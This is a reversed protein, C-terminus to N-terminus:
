CKDQPYSLMSPMTPEAHHNKMAVPHQSIVPVKQRATFHNVLLNQPGFVHTAFQSMYSELQNQYSHTLILMRQYQSFLLRVLSNIAAPIDQHSPHFHPAILVCGDYERRIEAFGIIQSGLRLVYQPYRQSDLPLAAQVALPVWKQYHARIPIHDCENIRGWGYDSNNGELSNPKLQWITQHCIPCFGARRLVDFLANANEVSVLTLIAGMEGARKDLFDTLCCMEHFHAPHAPFIFTLHAAHGQLFFQGIIKYSSHDDEVVATFSNNKPYVLELAAAVIAPQIGRTVQM